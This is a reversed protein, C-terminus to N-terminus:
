ATNSQATCNWDSSNKTKDSWDSSGRDTNTWATISWGASSWDTGTWDTGTWATGTWATGTWATHAAIQQPSEEQQSPQAAANPDVVRTEFPLMNFLQSFRRLKVNDKHVISWSLMVQQLKRKVDPEPGVIGIRLLRNLLEADVFGDQLEFDVSSLLSDLIFIARIKQHRDSEQLIKHIKWAAENAGTQPHQRIEDVITSIGSLDEEAHYPKVLIDIQGTVPDLDPGMNAIGKLLALLEDNQFHQELEHGVDSM